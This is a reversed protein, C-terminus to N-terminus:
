YFKSVLYLIYSIIALFILTSIIILLNNEDEFDDDNNLNEVKEQDTSSQSMNKRSRLNISNDLTSDIKSSYSQLFFIRRKRM